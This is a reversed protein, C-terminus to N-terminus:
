TQSPPCQERGEESLRTLYTISVDDSEEPQEALDDLLATRNRKCHRNERQYQPLDVHKKQMLEALEYADKRNRATRAQKPIVVSDVSGSKLLEIVGLM